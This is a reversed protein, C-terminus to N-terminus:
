YDMGAVTNSDAIIRAKLEEKSGFTMEPRIFSYLEVTPNKGYLRGDYDFIHTEARLINNEVTPTVGINTISKFRKGSIITKSAYVGFKPIVFGDKWSQNITPTNMMDTGLHAGHVVEFDFCFPATLWSNAKQIEGSEIMKRINTSSVTEGNKLVPPVIEASIGLEKCIDRLTQADGAAGKGFRFNFGGILKKANFKKQLLLVFDKPSLDKVDGFKPAICYEAGLSEFVRRKIDKPMIVPSHSPPADFTFVAPCLGSDTAKSIVARHGTHVGDFTGIAIATNEKIFGNGISEIVKM